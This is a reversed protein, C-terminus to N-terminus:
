DIKLELTIGKLSSDSHFLVDYKKVKHCNGKKGLLLCIIVVFRNLFYALLASEIAREISLRVLLCTRM